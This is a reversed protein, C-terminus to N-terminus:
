RREHAEDRSFRPATAPLPNQRMREVIERLIRAREAADTVQPPVVLEPSHVTLLVQTGDALDCPTVPIFSGNQFVARFYDAM